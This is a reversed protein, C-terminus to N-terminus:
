DSGSVRFFCHSHCSKEGWSPLVLTGNCDSDARISTKCGWSVMVALDVLGNDAVASLCPQTGQSV